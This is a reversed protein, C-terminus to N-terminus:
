NTVTSEVETVSAAGPEGALARARAFRDPVVLVWRTRALRHGEEDRARVVIPRLGPERAHFLWSERNVGAGRGGIEQWAGEFYAGCAELPYPSEVRATVRVPAGVRVSAPADVSVTLPGARLRRVAETVGLAVGLKAAQWGMTKIMAPLRMAVQLRTAPRARRRRFMCWLARAGPKLTAFRERPRPAGEVSPAV